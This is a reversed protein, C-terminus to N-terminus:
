HKWHHVKPQYRILQCRCHEGCSTQAETTRPLGEKMWDAIDMPPWNARELCDECVDEDDMTEWKWLEIPYRHKRFLFGSGKLGEKFGEWLTHLSPRLLIKKTWLVALLCLSIIVLLLICILWLIVIM